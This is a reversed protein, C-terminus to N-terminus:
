VKRVIGKEADVEVVDGDKLWKTAARTGIVCPVKLERSVIAAHCTIGGENTVIAGAIKMVPVMNPNTAASVLIDGKEFKKMDSSSNVIKVTGKAKGPFAVSGQIERTDSDINEEYMAAAFERAKEGTYFVSSSKRFVCVCHKARSNIEGVNIQGTKLGQEVEGPAMFRVQRPTLNLRKAMEKVLSYNNCSAEFVGDKRLGKLFSFEQALEVWYIEEQSLGLKAVLERQQKKLEEEQNKIKELEKSANIGTNLASHISDLFYDQGLIVPGDYHFQLWRYKLAHQQLDEAIDEGEQAKALLSYFDVDQQQLKGRKTSALLLSFAEAASIGGANTKQELFAMIKTSLLFHDFDVLNVVHGWKNAEVWKDFTEKYFAFLQSNTKSQLNEAEVAATFRVLKEISEVSNHVAEEFFGRNKLKQITIEGHQKFAEPDIAIKWLKDKCEILWEEEFGLMPATFSVAAYLYSYAHVLPSAEDTAVVKWKYM